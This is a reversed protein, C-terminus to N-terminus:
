IKILPTENFEPKLYLKIKYSNFFRTKFNFSWKKIADRYEDTGYYDEFNDVVVYWQNPTIVHRDLRKNFWKRFKELEETPKYGLNLFCDIMYAMAMDRWEHSDDEAFATYEQMLKELRVLEKKSTM